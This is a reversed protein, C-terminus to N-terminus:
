LGGAGANFFALLAPAPNIATGLNALAVVIVALALLASFVGALGLAHRTRREAPRTRARRKWSVVSLVALIVAVTAALAAGAAHYRAFDSIMVKLAPPTRGGSGPYGTLSQKVQGVTHTFQRNRTGIPLLSILSAFPAVAGQINVVALVVSFMALVTVLAGSLALAAGRGAALRGSRLLAGWPRIGLVVLVSLLLAAIVAKAVHYRTWYDVLRGLQPPYARNGSDWYGVFATRVATILAGQGAYGGGPASAALVGPALVFAAGLAVALVGLLALARGSVGTRPRRHGGHPQTFQSATMGVVM